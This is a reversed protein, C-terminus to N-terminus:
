LRVGLRTKGFRIGDRTRVRNNYNGRGKLRLMQNNRCQKHYKHINQRQIVERLLNTNVVVPSITHKQCRKYQIIPNKQGDSEKKKSQPFHVFFSNSQVKNSRRRGFM